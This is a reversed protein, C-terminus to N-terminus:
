GGIGIGLIKRWVIFIHGLSRGKDTLQCGMAGDVALGESMLDDIRPTVLFDDDLRRYLEDRELGGPGAREILDTIVMIPSEVEVAPYTLVYAAAIALGFAVTQAWAGANDPLFRGLSPEAHAALWLVVAGGVVAGTLLLILTQGTARPRRIRWVIWHVLFAFAFLALGLLVVAM